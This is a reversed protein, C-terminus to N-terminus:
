TSYWPNHLMMVGVNPIEAIPANALTGFSSPVPKTDQKMIAARSMGSPPGGNKKTLPSTPPKPNFRSRIKGLMSSTFSCKSISDSPPKESGIAAKAFMLGCNGTFYPENQNASPNFNLVTSIMSVRATRKARNPSSKVIPKSPRDVISKGFGDMRIAWMSSAIM